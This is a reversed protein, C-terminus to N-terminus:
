ALRGLGRLDNRLWPVGAARAEQKIKFKLATRLGRERYYVHPNYHRARGQTVWSSWEAESLRHMHGVTDAPEGCCPCLYCDQACHEEEDFVSADAALIRQVFDSDFAAENVCTAKARDLDYAHKDLHSEFIKMRTNIGADYEWRDPPAKFLAGGDQDIEKCCM